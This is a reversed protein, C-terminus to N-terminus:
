AALNAATCRSLTWCRTWGPRGWRHSKWRGATKNSIGYSGLVRRPPWLRRAQYSSRLHWFVPDSGALFPLRCAVLERLELRLVSLAVPFDRPLPTLKGPYRHLLFVREVGLVALLLEGLQEFAARLKEGVVDHEARVKLDSSAGTARIEGVPEFPQQKV